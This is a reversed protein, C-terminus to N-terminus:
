VRFIFSPCFEVVKGVGGKSSGGGCVSSLFSCLTIFGLLLGGEMIEYILNGAFGFFNGAFGFFYCRDTYRYALDRVLISNKLKEFEDGWLIGYIIPSRVRAPGSTIFGSLSPRSRQSGQKLTVLVMRRRGFVMPYYGFCVLVSGPNDVGRAIGLVESEQDGIGNPM